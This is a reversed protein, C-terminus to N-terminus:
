PDTQEQLMQEVSIHLQISDGRCFNGQYLFSHEVFEGSGFGINENTVPKCFCDPFKEIDELTIWENLVYNEQKGTKIKNGKDSQNILSISYRYRLPWKLKDDWEGKMIELFIGIYKETGSWDIYAGFKYMGVYFPDSFTTEKKFLKNKVGGIKWKFEGKVNWSSIPLLISELKLNKNQLVENKKELEEVRGKMVLTTLRLHTHIEEKEHQTIQQRQVKVECGYRSYPCKIEQLLCHQNLHTSEDKRKIKTETSCENPCSIPFEGCLELHANMMFYKIKRSCYDCKVSRMFCCTKHTEVRRREVRSVEGKEDRCGLPCAM